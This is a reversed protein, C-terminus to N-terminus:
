LKAAVKSFLPAVLALLTTPMAFNALQYRFRAFILILTAIGFQRTDAHGGFAAAVNRNNWVLDWFWEHKANVETSINGGFHRGFSTEIPLRENPAPGIIPIYERRCSWMM